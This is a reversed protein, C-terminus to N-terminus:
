ACNREIPNGACANVGACRAPVPSPTGAAAESKILELRIKSAAATLAVRHTMAQCLQESTATGSQKIQQPTAAGVQGMVQGGAQRHSSDGQRRDTEIRAHMRQEGIKEEAGRALQDDAGIGGGTCQYRGGDRRQGGAVGLGVNRQGRQQRQERPQEADGGAEELQIHQRVEQQPRDQDAEEVTNGDANRQALGTLQEAERDFLLTDDRHGLFDDVLEGQHM